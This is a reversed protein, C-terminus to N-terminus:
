GDTKATFRCVCDYLGGGVRAAVKEDKLLALRLYDAAMEARYNSEVARGMGEMIVLDADAAAANLEDSVESLDILPIDNGSSVTQIMGDALLIKLEGDLGALLGLIRRTDEITMDNLVPLENATLVVKMGCLALERALPMVGLVFDSGANDVFIIAKAWPTPPAAALLGDLTDFDDALWPRKKLLDMTRFFDQPQEALHMTSASGLDFINGAFVGEILRLWRRRRPVAALRALVQRYIAMAATNERDKIHSFPDGLGHSRLTRERMRCLEIINLRGGPLASPDERLRRIIGAFDGRAAEIKPRATPGYRVLAHSLTTGFHKEFLGLWYGRGCDDEILDWDVAVYKDPNKLLRFHAM